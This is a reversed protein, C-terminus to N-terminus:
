DSDYKHKFKIILHSIVSIVIIWLSIIIIWINFGNKKKEDIIKNKIFCAYYTNGESVMMSTNIMVDTSCNKDLSWGLFNYGSKVPVSEPLVLSCNGDIINNCKTVSYVLNEIVYRFEYYTVKEIVDDEEKKSDSNNSSIGNNNLSNEGNGSTVNGWSNGSNSSGGSGTAGSPGSNSGNMQGNEKSGSGNDHEENTTDDEEKKNYLEYILIPSSPLGVYGDTGLYANKIIDVDLEDIKGDVNVDSNELGQDLLDSNGLLYDELLIYDDSDIEGNLNVDGYAIVEEIQVLNWQAYLDMKASLSISSGGIYSEGSGDIETNWGIFEYGIPVDFMNNLLVYDKKGNEEFMINEISGDPWNSFYSVEYTITLNGTIGGFSAYTERMFFDFSFYCISLLIVVCFGMGILFNNKFNM